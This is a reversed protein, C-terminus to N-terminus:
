RVSARLHSGGVAFKIRQAICGCGDFGNRQDGRRDHRFLHRRSHVRQHEVDLDAGSGEHLPLHIRAPQRLHHDSDPATEILAHLRQNGVHILRQAIGDAVREFHHFNRLRQLIDAGVSRVRRESSSAARM